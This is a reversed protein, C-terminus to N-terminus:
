KKKEKQNTTNRQEIYANSNQEMDELQSDWTPIDRAFRKLADGKLRINTLDEDDSVRQDSDDTMNDFTNAEFQRHKKQSSPDKM